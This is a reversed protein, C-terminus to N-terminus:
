AFAGRTGLAAFALGAGIITFAAGVLLATAAAATATATTATIPFAQRLALTRHRQIRRLGIDRNGREVAFGDFIGTGVTRQAWVPRHMVGTISFAQTATATAAATATAVATITVLGAIQRFALVFITSDTRFGICGRFM